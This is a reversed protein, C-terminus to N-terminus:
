SHDDSGSSSLSFYLPRSSDTCDSSNWVMTCRATHKDAACPRVDTSVNLMVVSGKTHYRKILPEHFSSREHVKMNPKLSIRIRIKLVYFLVISM